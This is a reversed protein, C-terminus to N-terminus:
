KVVPPPLYDVPDDPPEEELGYYVLMVHFEPSAFLKDLSRRRRMYNRQYDTKAQGTLPM